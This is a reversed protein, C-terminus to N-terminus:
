PGAARYHDTNAPDHMLQTIIRAQVGVRSPAPIPSPTWPPAGIGITGTGLGGGGWGLGQSAVCRNFYEEGQLRDCRHTGLNPTLTRSRFATEQNQAFLRLAPSVTLHSIRELTQLRRLPTNGLYASSEFRGAVLDEISSGANSNSACLAQETTSYLALTMDTYTVFRDTQELTGIQGRDIVCYTTM